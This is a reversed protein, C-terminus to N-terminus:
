NVLDLPMCIGPRRDVCESRLAELQTGIPCACFVGRRTLFWPEGNTKETMYAFVFRCRARGKGTAPALFFLIDLVLGKKEWRFSLCTIGM